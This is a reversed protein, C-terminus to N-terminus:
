HFNRGKPMVRATAATLEDMRAPAEKLATV